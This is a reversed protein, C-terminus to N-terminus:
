RGGEPELLPLVATGWAVWDEEDRIGRRLLAHRM